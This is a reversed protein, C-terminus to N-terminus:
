RRAPALMGGLMPALAKMTAPVKMHRIAGGQTIRYGSPQQDSPHMKPGGKAVTMLLAEMDKTDRHAALHFREALLTQLMAGRQATSSGPPAKAVIDYSESGIWDPGLVQEGQVSYARAVIGQLTVAIYTLGGASENFRM